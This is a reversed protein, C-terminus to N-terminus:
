IYTRDMDYTFYYYFTIEFITKYDSNFCLESIEILEFSFFRVRYILWMFTMTLM